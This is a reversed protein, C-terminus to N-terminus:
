SVALYDKHADRMKQRARYITRSVIDSPVGIEQAIEAPKMQHEELLFFVQTEQESLGAKRYRYSQDLSIHIDTLRRGAKEDAVWDYGAVEGGQSTAHPADLSSMNWYAQNAKKKLSDVYMNNMITRTWAFFSGEGMYKFKHRKELARVLADHAIDQADAENLRWQTIAHRMLDPLIKDYQQRFCFGDKQQPCSRCSSCDTEGNLSRM